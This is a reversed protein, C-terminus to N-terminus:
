PRKAKPQSSLKDVKLPNSGSGPYYMLGGNSVEPIPIVYEHDLIDSFRLKCEAARIDALNKDSPLVFRLWGVLLSGPVIANTARLALDNDPHFEAMLKGEPNRLVLRKPFLTPALDIGFADAKLRFGDAVSPLSGTNKVRVLIYLEKNLKAEMWLFQEIEGGLEPRPRENEKAALKETADKAAHFQVRWATFFACLLFAVIFVLAYARKSIEPMTPRKFREYLVLLVVLAGGIGAGALMQQWQWFVAGLFKLVDRM